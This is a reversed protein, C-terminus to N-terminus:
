WVGRYFSVVLPGKSLLDSSSVIQGQENPLAFEPARDGAKLFGKLFRDMIGSNRLDDTARYMIALADSPASAEFQKRVEDLKDQLSM